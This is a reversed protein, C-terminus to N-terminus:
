CGNAATADGSGNEQKTKKAESENEEDEPKRKRRILHSIDSAKKDTFGSAVEKAMNKLDDLNKKEEETDEIKGKIDPLIEKLESIEKEALKVPDDFKSPDKEGKDGEQVFKTLKAIKDEIVKIATRYHEISEDYQKNFCHALGLQYHTEAILRDEPETELSVEGLKLHSEATKIKSEKEEGKSYILKALELMEWALQLNSVDDPDEEGEKKEGEDQSKEGEDATGEGEEEEGEEGEEDGEEEDGEESNKSSDDKEPEKEEKKEKDDVSKKEDPKDSSEAEMSEGETKKESKEEDKKEEKKADVNEPKEFQDDQSSKESSEDEDEPVGELANGLVGTEMLIKCAEQFQNVAAPVEGCVLNRKGQAIMNAATIKAEMREKDSSSSTGASDM